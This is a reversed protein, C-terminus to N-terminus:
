LNWIGKILVLTKIRMTAIKNPFAKNTQLKLRNILVVQM